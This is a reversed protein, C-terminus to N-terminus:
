REPWEVAPEGEPWEHEAERREADLEIWCMECVLQGGHGAWATPPSEKADHPEECEACIYPQGM